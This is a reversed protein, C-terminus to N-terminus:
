GRLCREVLEKFWEDEKKAFQEKLKLSAEEYAMAKKQKADALEQEQQKKLSALRSEMEKQHEQFIEERRSEVEKKVCIRQAEIEEVKKRATLDNAIIEHVLTNM